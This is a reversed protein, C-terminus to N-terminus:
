GVLVDIPAIRVEIGGARLPAAARELAEVGGDAYGELVMIYIPKDTAGGVDSDLDLINFGQGALAATVQAVIGPRDAGHVVVRVNPEVHAHLRGDISDFHLHLEFKEAIPDLLRALGGADISSEVMLMITFTGGLRTMSAEGLNAGGRYLADTLAAVIGSRDRGVVTLMHWRKM